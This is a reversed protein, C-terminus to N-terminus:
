VLKLDGRFVEVKSPHPLELEFMMGGRQEIVAISGAHQQMFRNALWLGYGTGTEKSTVGKEFVLREAPVRKEERAPDTNLLHAQLGGANDRYTFRVPGDEHSRKEINVVIKRTTNKSMGTFADASNLLLNIFVQRIRDPFVLVDSDSGSLAIQAKALKGATANKAERWLGMLSIETLESVKPTLALSIKNLAEVVEAVDEELGGLRQVALSPKGEKIAKRTLGIADDANGVKVIAEHRAAQAVEVATLATSIEIFELAQNTVEHNSRHYLIALGAANALGEFARVELTNYEYESSAAVSLVGFVAKGVRIPLAVFSRVRDLEPRQKLSAFRPADMSPAVVAEELADLFPPYSELPVLDLRNLEPRPDFGWVELTRLGGLEADFERLAVFEMRASETIQTILSQFFERETGYFKIEKQSAKLHSYSFERQYIQVLLQACLELEIIQDGTLNAQGKDALMIFGIPTDGRYGAVITGDSPLSTARKDAPNGRRIAGAAIATSHLTQKPLVLLEAPVVHGKWGDGLSAYPMYHADGRKLLWLSVDRSGLARAIRNVVEMAADAPRDTQAVLRALNVLRKSLPDDM